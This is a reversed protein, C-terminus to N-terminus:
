LRVWSQLQRLKSAIVMIVADTEFNYSHVCSQLQRFEPVLCNAVVSCRPMRVGAATQLKAANPSALIVQLASISTTRLSTDEQLVRALVLLDSYAARGRLSHM